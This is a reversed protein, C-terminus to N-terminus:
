KKKVISIKHIFDKRSEAGNAERYNAGISGSSAALQEIIRKNIPFVPITKLVSIIDKAAQTTRSELDNQRKILDSM